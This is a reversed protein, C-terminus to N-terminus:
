SLGKGKLEFNGLCYRDGDSLPARSKVSLEVGGVHPSILRLVSVVRLRCSAAKGEVQCNKKGM